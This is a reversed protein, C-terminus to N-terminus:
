CTKPMYVRSSSFFTVLNEQGWFLFASSVEDLRPPCDLHVGIHLISNVPFMDIPSLCKHGVNLSCELVHNCADRHMHLLVNLADYKYM